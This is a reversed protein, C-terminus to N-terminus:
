KRLRQTLELLVDICRQAQALPLTGMGCSPTIIAQSSLLDKQIGKKVLTEIDRQFRKFLSDGTEKEIEQSTPVIGWAIVGGKKLYDKLRDAYLSMSDIYNYSDFSIIEAKTEMLLAWDTNGCCHIGCFAGEQQVAEIVENLKNIVDKRDLSAFSSGISVLYPEDIFLIVDKFVQKLKRIQWKAKMAITKVVVDSFEENYLISRKNQDLVSLGFSIPGTVQGKLYLIESPKQKKIENLFAYFGAAYDQSIKFYEVDKSLVKEYFESLELSYDGMTNFWVKRESEDIKLRPANESYQVYMSEYFSKKPLQPWIPIHKFKSLVLNVAEIPDTYPLSGILTQPFLTKLDM